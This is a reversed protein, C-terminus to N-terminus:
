QSSKVFCAARLGLHRFVNRVPFNNSTRTVTDALVCTGCRCADSERGVREVSAQRGCLFCLSCSTNGCVNM